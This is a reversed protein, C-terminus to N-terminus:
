NFKLKVRWEKNNKGECKMTIRVHEASSILFSRPASTRSAHVKSERHTSVINASDLFEM